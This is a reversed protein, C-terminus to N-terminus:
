RLTIKKDTTHEKNGFAIKKVNILFTNEGTKDITSCYFLLIFSTWSSGCECGVLSVWLFCAFWSLCYLVLAPLERKGRLATVTSYM